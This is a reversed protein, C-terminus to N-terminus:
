SGAARPSAAPPSPLRRASPCRGASRLRSRVSRRNPPWPRRRAARRGPRAVRCPPPPRTLTSCVRPALSFGRGLGPSVPRHLQKPRGPTPSVVRQRPKPRGATAGDVRPRPKLRAGRGPLEHAHAGVGDADDEGGRSTAALDLRARGHEVGCSPEADIEVRGAAAAADAPATLDLHALAVVRLVPDVRRSGTEALGGPELAVVPALPRQLRPAPEAADRGDLRVDHDVDRGLALEVTLDDALLGVGM